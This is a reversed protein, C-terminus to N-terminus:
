GYSMTKNLTELKNIESANGAWICDSAPPTKLSTAWNPLAKPRATVAAMAAETVSCEAAVSFTANISPKRAANQVMKALVAMTSMMLRMPRLFHPMMPFVSSHDINKLHYQPRLYGM